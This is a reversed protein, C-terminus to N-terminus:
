AKLPLFRQYDKHLLGHTQLIAGLKINFGIQISEEHIATFWLVGNSHLGFHQFSSRLCGQASRAPLCLDVMDVSTDASLQCGRVQFASGAKRWPIGSDICYGWQWAPWGFLCTLCSILHLGLRM